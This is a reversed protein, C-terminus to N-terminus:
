HLDHNHVPLEDPVPAALDALEDMDSQISENLLLLDPLLSQWNFADIRQLQRQMKAVHLRLTAAAAKAEDFEMLGDISGQLHNAQELSRSAVSSWNDEAFSATELALLHQSATVSELAARYREIPSVDEESSYGELSNVKAEQSRSCGALALTAAVLVSALRRSVKM